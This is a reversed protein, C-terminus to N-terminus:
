EHVEASADITLPEPKLADERQRLIEAVSLHGVTGSHEVKIQDGYIKPALKGALWKRADVRLRSRNINDHDVSEYETGDQRYRTVLDDSSDDAIPIIQEALLQGQMEKARAYKQRFDEHEELWRYITRYSPMGETRCITELGRESTALSACIEDAIDSDYPISPRGLKTLSSSSQSATTTTSVGSIIARLFYANRIHRHHAHTTYRVM